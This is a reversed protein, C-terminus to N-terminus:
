GIRVLHILTITALQVDPRVNTCCIAKSCSNPSLHLEFLSPPLWIVGSPALTAAKKASLEAVSTSHKWPEIAGLIPCQRASRDGRMSDRGRLPNLYSNAARNRISKVLNKDPVFMLTFGLAGSEVQIM